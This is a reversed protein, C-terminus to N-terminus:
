SPFLVRNERVLIWPRPNLFKPRWKWSGSFLYYLSLSLCRERAFFGHRISVCSRTNNGTHKTLSVVRSAGIMRGQGWACWICGNDRAAGENRKVRFSFFSMCVRSSSSPPPPTFCASKDSISSVRDVSRERNSERETVTHIVPFRLCATEQVFVRVVLSHFGVSWRVSTQSLRRRRRRYIIKGQISYCLFFLFLNVPRIGYRSDHFLVSQVALTQTYLIM